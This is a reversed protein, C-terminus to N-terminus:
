RKKEESGKVVGEILKPEFDGFRPADDYSELM